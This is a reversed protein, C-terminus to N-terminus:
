VKESGSVKGYDGEENIPLNKFWERFDNDFIVIRGLDRTPLPYDPDHIHRYVKAASWGMLEALESVKYYKPIDTLTKQM